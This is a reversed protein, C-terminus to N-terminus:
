LIWTSRTYCEPRKLFNSSGTLILQVM